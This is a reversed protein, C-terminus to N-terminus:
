SDKPQPTEPFMENFAEEFRGERYARHLIPIREGAKVFRELEELQEQETQERLM